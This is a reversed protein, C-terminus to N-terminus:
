RFLAQAGQWLLRLIHPHNRLVQEVNQDARGALLGQREFVVPLAQLTAGAVPHIRHPVVDGDQQHVLRHHVRGLLEAGRHTTERGLQAIKGKEDWLSM